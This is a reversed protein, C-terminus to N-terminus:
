ASPQSEALARSSAANSRQDAEGRRIGASSLVSCRFRRRILRIRAPRHRIAYSQHMLLHPAQAAKRAGVGAV